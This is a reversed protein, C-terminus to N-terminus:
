LRLGTPGGAGKVREVDIRVGRDSEGPSHSLFMPRLHFYQGALEIPNIPSPTVTQHSHGNKFMYPEWAHYVIIQGPVTAPSIKARIEFSGVDNFVRVLDHDKIGRKKADGVSLYVIPEGRQLRLMLAHDRWSTHISHRTHGGTMRLPYRGGISEEKHVPLEEGLELFLEHDIYFQMRRTLTPWPIKKDTHWTNPTITETPDLDTANGVNMQANGVSTFRAIGTKAISEWAVGQLNGSVKVFDTLLKVDDDEKYHGGYTLDDYIRDLPREQGQRDKFSRVGREKAREQLQKALLCHLKWEPLSEGVPDVAKEQGHIYTALPTVWRLDNREYWGAIPLVFDAYRGTNSMRWNIDVLLHLKPLFAEILKPYGRFRRLFNGGESFMVRPTTGPDAYQWKKDLSLKVYEDIDRKMDPDWKRQDRMLDKLGGHFYLTLVSSVYSQKEYAGRVLEYSVMEDTYGKDKLAKVVPELQRDFARKGEPLPLNPYMFAEGVADATLFPFAQLGSGKKGFQGCLAFVLFQAREMEMGHYFKSFNSQTVGTVAKAKAIDRALRRIVEPHTGCIASAKEPTYDRLREKLVEFVPRVKVKGSKTEVEFEGELAPDLAGLSLSERPVPSVSSTALDFAQFVDPAGGDELDAERLFLRDDSRVLLAMDTQEKLFRADYLKEAVVVQSIALALAADTGVRVPVWQDVHISSPNYDPCISIIKAGKYRAENIFHMNPIQTYIPNGGWILILDSYFMDDASSCFVIKGCTVAAGQHDDGIDPNMDWVPTDLLYSTRNVGFAHPGGASYQTGVDTHIAGPGDTTLTDVMVDAIESLAEDWSVRKWKGEGREGARKLPYRLRTADYMRNSFCAGKQCGRPNFDPVAGNTQSYIGAQEERWVIGGKVYVNWNCSSQYWCNVYHTAPSVKDWTWRNRYLDEWGRYSVAQQIGEGAAAASGRLTLHSLSLSLVGLASSRLFDRRTVDYSM